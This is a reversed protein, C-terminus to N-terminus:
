KSVSDQAASSNPIKVTELAKKDSMGLTKLEFRAEEAGPHQPYAKLFQNLLNRAQDMDNLVNHNIWGSVLLSKPAFEHHPYKSWVKEWINLAMKYDLLYTSMNEGAQWLFQPALHHDPNETAFKMWTDCLKRLLVTDVSQHHHQALEKNQDALLEMQHIEELKKKTDLDACGTSIGLLLLAWLWNYERMSSHEGRNWSYFTDSDKITKGKRKDGGTEGSGWAEFYEFIKTKTGAM